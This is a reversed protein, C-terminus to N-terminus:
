KHPSLVLQNKKGLVSVPGLLSSQKATWSCELKDSLHLKMSSTPLSLVDPLYSKFGRFVGLSTGLEKGEVIASNEVSLKEFPYLHVTGTSSSVALCDNRASFCANTIACMRMGRKLSHLCCMTMANFVKIFKGTSDIACM